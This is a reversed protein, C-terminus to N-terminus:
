GWSLGVMLDWTLGKLTHIGPKGPSTPFGIIKFIEGLFSFAVHFCKSLARGGGWIQWHKQEILLPLKKILWWIVGVLCNPLVQINLWSFRLQQPESVDSHFHFRCRKWIPNYLILNLTWMPCRYLHFFFNAKAWHLHVKLMSNNLVMNNSM